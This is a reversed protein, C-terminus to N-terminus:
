QRIKKYKFLKFNLKKNYLYKDNIICCKGNM